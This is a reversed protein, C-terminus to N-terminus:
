GLSASRFGHLIRYCAPKPPYCTYIYIYLCINTLRSFDFRLINEPRGTIIKHAGPFQYRIAEQLFLCILAHFLQFLCSVTALSRGCLGANEMAAQSLDQVQAAYSATQERLLLQVTAPLVHYSQVELQAFPALMFPCVSIAFASIRRPWCASLRTEGTFPTSFFLKLLWLSATFNTQPKRTTATLSCPESLLWGSVRM